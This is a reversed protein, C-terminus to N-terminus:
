IYKSFFILFNTSIFAEVLTSFFIGIIGVLSVMSHKIIGIKINEKRKDKITTKYLKIGSVAILIISPIFIVNQLFIGLFSIKIGTNLGLVAILSGLTYGLCFGRYGIIGYVIPIGM